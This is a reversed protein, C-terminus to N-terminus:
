VAPRVSWNTFSKTSFLYIFLYVWPIDYLLELLVQLMLTNANVKVSQRRGHPTLVSVAMTAAM